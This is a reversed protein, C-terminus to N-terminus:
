LNALIPGSGFNLYHTPDPASYDTWLTGSSNFTTGGIVLGTTFPQNTFNDFTITNFGAATATQWATIDSYTIVTAFSPGISLALLACSLRATRLRFM